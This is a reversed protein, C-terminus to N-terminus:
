ENMQPYYFADPLSRQPPPSAKIDYLTYYAPPTEYTQAKM